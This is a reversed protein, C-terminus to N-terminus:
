AVASGGEIRRAPKRRCAHLALALAWARDAHGRESRDADYRVAGGKTIVRRIACLDSVLDPDRRMTVMRDAFAQYLTTALEEKSSVTFSVPEVRQRGLRAQLAQAPVLGLGTSDVCLRRVRWTHFAEIIGAQQTEWDTRKWDFRAIVHVRDTYADQKVIVLSSLDNELGVDLGAYVDGECAGVEDDPAVAASIVDTPIYQQAGDLFKCEFLQGFLRADGHAMKWCDDLNVPFGQAIAEHIPVEHRAYGDSAQRNTWLEHFLNGVGNPTSIVRICYGHMAVASAGDWVRDARGDHYAFEDLIVNGSFSRGGSSAPLAIVRGGSAFMVSEGKRWRGRDAGGAAWKSGLRALVSAHREVKDLVEIAEREGISIITSTEGLFAGRLAAWGATSHSLGIQRSKNCIAFRAPELVWRKQFPYFTEVWAALAASEGPPLARRLTELLASSPSSPAM